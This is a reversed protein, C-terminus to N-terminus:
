IWEGSWCRRGSGDNNVVRTVVPGDDNVLWWLTSHSLLKCWPAFTEPNPNQKQGITWTSFSSMGKDLTIPASSDAIPIAVTVTTSSTEAKGVNVDDNIPAEENRCDSPHVTPSTCMEKSLEAELMLKEVNEVVRLVLSM